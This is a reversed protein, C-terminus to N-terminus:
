GEGGQTIEYLVEFGDNLLDDLWLQNPVASVYFEDKDNKLVVVKMWQPFIRVSADYGHLLNASDMWVSNCDKSKLNAGEIKVYNATIM